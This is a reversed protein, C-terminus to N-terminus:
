GAPSDSTAGGDWSKGPFYVVSSCIVRVLSLQVWLVEGEDELANVLDFEFVARDGLELVGVIDDDVDAVGTNATAIYTNVYGRCM